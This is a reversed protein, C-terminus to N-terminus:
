MIMVSIVDDDCIDCIERLGYILCTRVLIVLMNSYLCLYGVDLFM